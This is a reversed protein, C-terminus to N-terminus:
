AARGMGKGLGSGQGEGAIGAQAVADDEDGAAPRSDARRDHLGEDRLPALTAKTSMALRSDTSAPRAREGGARLRRQEEFAVQGVEGREFRRHLFDALPEPRDRHEDVVGGVVCRWSASSVLSASQSRAIPTLRLCWNKAACIARREIRSSPPPDIM